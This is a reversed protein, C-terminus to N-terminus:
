SERLRALVRRSLSEWGRATMARPRVERVRAIQPPENPPLPVVCHDFGLAALEARNCDEGDNVSLVADIGLGRVASLDWPERNPGPRGALRGPLLWFIHNM